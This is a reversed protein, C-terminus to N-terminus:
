VLDLRCRNSGLLDIEEEMTYSIYTAVQVYVHLFQLTDKGDSFLHGRHGIYQTNTLFEYSPSLLTDVFHILDQRGETCPCVLVLLYSLTAIYDIIFIFFM